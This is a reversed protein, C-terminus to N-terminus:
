ISTSILPPPCAFAVSWIGAANANTSANADQNNKSPSDKKAEMVVTDWFKVASTSVLPVKPTNGNGDNDDDDIHVAKSALTPNQKFFAHLIAQKRSAEKHGIFDGHFTCYNPCQYGSHRQICCSLSQWSEQQEVFWHTNKCLKIDQL